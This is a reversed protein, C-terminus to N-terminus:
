PRASTPTPSRRGLVIFAIGIAIYIPHFFSFVQIFAVEVVIWWIQLVGAAVTVPGTRPDGRWALVAVLTMPAAVTMILAIGGLVPSDFPLRDTVEAGLDLFGAILGAAGGWASLAILGAFVALGRRPATRDSTAPPATMAM